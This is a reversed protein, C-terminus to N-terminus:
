KWNFHIVTNKTTVAFTPKFNTREEFRDCFLQINTSIWNQLVDECYKAVDKSDCWQEIAFNYIRKVDCLGWKVYDQTLIDRLSFYLESSGRKALRELEKCMTDVMRDLDTFFPTVNFYIKIEECKRRYAKTSIKKLQEQLNTIPPSHPPSDTVPPLPTYQETM